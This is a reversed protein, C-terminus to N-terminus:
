KAVYHEAKNNENCIYELIEEEPALKMLRRLRWPKQYAGPDDVTIELELLGLGTRRFREIVHLKETQPRGTGDIWGQDNFGVTDVVLTDGDWKGISHGMWTPFADGHGRGDLFIQRASPSAGEILIVLLKPTHVFKTLDVQSMRVIGSPLCNARPDDGLSAARKKQLDAAWPQYVPDDSDVPLSPLWVGSLDIHGDALRPAEGALTATEKLLAFEGPVNVNTNPDVKADITVVKGAEVKTGRRTVINYGAKTLFVDYSGAPLAMSYKGGAATTVVFPRDTAVNRASVTLGSVGGNPDTITGEIRGDQAWGLAQVCVLVALRIAWRM